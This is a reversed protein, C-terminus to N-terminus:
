ILRTKEDDCLAGEFSVEQDSKRLCNSRGTRGTIRGNSMKAGKVPVCVNNPKRRTSVTYKAKKFGGLEGEEPEDARREKTRAPLSL